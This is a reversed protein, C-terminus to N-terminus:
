HVARGGFLGHWERLSSNSLVDFRQIDSRSALEAGLQLSLNLIGLSKTGVFNQDAISYALSRVRPNM